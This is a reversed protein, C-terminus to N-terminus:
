KNGCGKTVLILFIVSQRDYFYSLGRYDSFVKKDRKTRNEEKKMTAM